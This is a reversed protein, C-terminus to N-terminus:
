VRVSRSVRPAWTPIVVSKQYGPLVGSRTSIRSSRASKMRFEHFGATELSITRLALAARRLATVLQFRSKGRAAVRVFGRVSRYSVIGGHRFRRLRLDVAPSFYAGRDAESKYPTAAEREFRRTRLTGYSVTPIARPAEQWEVPRLTPECLTKSKGRDRNAAQSLVPVDGERHGYTPIGAASVGDVLVSSSFGLHDHDADVRVLGGVGRCRDVGIGVLVEARYPDVCGEVVVGLQHGPGLLPGVADPRDLVGGTETM